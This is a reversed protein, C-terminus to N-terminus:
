QGRQREPVKQLLPFAQAYHEHKAKYFDDGDKLRPFHELDLFAKAEGGVLGIVDVVVYDTKHEAMLERAFTNLVSLAVADLSCPVRSYSGLLRKTLAFFDASTTMGGPTEHFECNLFFCRRRAPVQEQLTALVSAPLAIPHAKM